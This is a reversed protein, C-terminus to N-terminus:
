STKTYQKFTTRAVLSFEDGTAAPVFSDPFFVFNMDVVNASHTRYRKGLEGPYNEIYKKIDILYQKLNPKGIENLDNIVMRKKQLSMYAHCQDSGQNCYQCDLYVQAQNTVSTAIQLILGSSDNDLKPKIYKEISTSTMPALEKKSLFNESLYFHALSEFVFMYLRFDKPYQQSWHEPASLSWHERDIFSATDLFDDNCVLVKLMLDSIYGLIDM